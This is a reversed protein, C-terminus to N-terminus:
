ISLYLVYAITTELGDALNHMVIPGALSHTEQYVYGAMIGFVAAYIM